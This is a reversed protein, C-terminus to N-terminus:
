KYAIGKVEALKSKATKWDPLRDAEYTLTKIEKAIDKSIKMGQLHAGSRAFQQLDEKTDWLTMTYHTTWVGTKKFERYQTGKLQKTIQLANKALAFFHWPSKLTIQTITVQM